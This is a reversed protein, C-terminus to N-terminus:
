LRDRVLTSLKQMKHNELISYGLGSRGYGNGNLFMLFDDGNKVVYPYCQMESCWGDTSLEMQHLDDVRLWDIGNLSAALGIRYFDGRYSYWMLFLEGVKLVCPKSVAIEGIRPEFIPNRHWVFNVGDESTGVKLNYNHNLGLEDWSEFRTAIAIIQSSNSFVFTSGFGIFDQDTRHFIPARSHKTFVKNDTSTALGVGNYWRVQVGEIWGTYYLNTVDSKEFICPYSIGNQDFAGPLGLDFIPTESIDTIKLSNANMKACGINSRGFDDRGTVYLLLSDGDRQVATAGASTTMWKIEPKPELIQVPLRWQTNM